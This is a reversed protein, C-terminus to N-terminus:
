HAHLYINVQEKMHRYVASPPIFRPSFLYSSEVDSQSTKSFLIVATPLINKIFDDIISAQLIEDGRDVLDRFYLEEYAKARGPFPLLLADRWYEVPSRHNENIFLTEHEFIYKLPTLAPTPFIAIAVTPTFDEKPKGRLVWDDYMSDRFQGSIIGAIATHKFEQFEQETFPFGPPRLANEIPNSM